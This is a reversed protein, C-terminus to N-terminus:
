YHQATFSWIPRDTWWNDTVLTEGRKIPPVAGRMSALTSQCIKRESNKKGSSVYRPQSRMLFVDEADCGICANMRLAQQSQVALIEAGDCGKHVLSAIAGGLGITPSPNRM